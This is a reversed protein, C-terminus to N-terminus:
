ALFLVYKETSVSINVRFMENVLQNKEPLYDHPFM